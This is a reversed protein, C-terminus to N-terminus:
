YLDVSRSGPKTKGDNPSDPGLGFLPSANTSRPLEEELFTVSTLRGHTGSAM